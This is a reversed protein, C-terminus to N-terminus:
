IQPTEVKVLDLAENVRLHYDAGILETDYPSGFAIQGVKMLIAVSACVHKEKEEQVTSNAGNLNASISDIYHPVAQHLLEATKPKIGHASLLDVVLMLYDYDTMNHTFGVKICRAVHEEDVVSSDKMYEANMRKMLISSTQSVVKNNSFLGMFLINFVILCAPKSNSVMKDVFCQEIINKFTLYLNDRILRSAMDFFETKFFNAIKRLTADMTPNEITDDLMNVKFQRALIGFLQLHQCMMIECPMSLTM